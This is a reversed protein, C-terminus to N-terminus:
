EGDDERHVGPWLVIALLMAWFGVCAFVFGILVALDTWTM